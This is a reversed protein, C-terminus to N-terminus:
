SQFSAQVFSLLRISDHQNKLVQRDVEREVDRDAVHTNTFVTKM